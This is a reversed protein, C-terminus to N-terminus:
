APGRERQVATRPAPEAAKARSLRKSRDGREPGVTGRIGMRREKLNVRNKKGMFTERLVELAEVV